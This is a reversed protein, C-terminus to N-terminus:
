PYMDQTTVIVSGGHQYVRVGNLEVVLWNVEHAAPTCAAKIARRKFMRGSPNLLSMTHIGDTGHRNGADDTTIEHSM